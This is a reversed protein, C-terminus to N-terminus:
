LGFPCVVCYYRWQSTLVVDRRRKLTMIVNKRQTRQSPLFYWWTADHLMYKTTNHSIFTGNIGSFIGGSAWSLSELMTKSFYNCMNLYMYEEFYHLTYTCITILFSLCKNKRRRWVGKMVHPILVRSVERYRKKLSSVTLWKTDKTLKSGFYLKQKRQTANNEITYWVPDRYISDPVWLLPVDWYWQPTHCSDM